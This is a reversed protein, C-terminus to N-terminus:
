KKGKKLAKKERQDTKKGKVCNEFDVQSTKKHMQHNYKIKSNLVDVTTETLAVDLLLKGLMAKIIPVCTYILSIEWSFFSPMSMQGKTSKCTFFFM